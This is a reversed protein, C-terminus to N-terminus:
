AGFPLHHRLLLGSRRNLCGCHTHSNSMKNVADPQRAIGEVALAAVKGIGLAAGITVLGAGIAAISGVTMDKGKRKFQHVLSPQLYTDTDYRNEHRQLTLAIYNKKRRSMFFPDTIRTICIFLMLAHLSFLEPLHIPLLIPLHWEHADLVHHMMYKEFDFSEKM